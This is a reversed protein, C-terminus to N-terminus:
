RQVGKGKKIAAKVVIRDAQTSEKEGRRHSRREGGSEEVIEAGAEITEVKRRWRAVIQCGVTSGSQRLGQSEKESFSGSRLVEKNNRHDKGNLGLAQWRPLRHSVHESRQALYGHCQTITCDGWTIQSYRTASDNMHSPWKSSHQHIQANRWPFPSMLHAQTLTPSGHPNTNLHQAIDYKAYGGSKVKGQYVIVAVIETQM